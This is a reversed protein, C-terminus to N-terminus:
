EEKEQLYIFLSDTVEYYTSVIQFPSVHPREDEGVALTAKQV